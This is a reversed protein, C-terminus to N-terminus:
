NNLLFLAWLTTQIDQQGESGTVPTRIGMPGNLNSSRRKGYLLVLHEELKIELFASLNRCCCECRIRISLCSSCSQFSYFLIGYRREKEKNKLIYLDAEKKRKSYKTVQKSSEPHLYYIDVNNHHSLPYKRKRKQKNPPLITTTSFSILTILENPIKNYLMSYRQYKLILFWWIHFLLKCRM